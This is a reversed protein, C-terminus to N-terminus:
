PRERRKSARPPAPADIRAGIREMREGARRKREAEDLVRQQADLHDLTERREARAADVCSTVVFRQRCELEQQAYNSHAQARERAIRERETQPPDAVAGLPAALAVGMLLALLSGPAPLPSRLWVYRKM